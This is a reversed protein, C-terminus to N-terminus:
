KDQLNFAQYFKNAIYRQIDKGNHMLDRARHFEINPVQYEGAVESEFMTLKINHAHSLRQMVYRNKKVNTEANYESAAWQKYILEHRSDSAMYTIPLTQEYIEFRHAPPELVFIGKINLKDIYYDLLRVVTDFSSGGVGLNLVPYDLKISLQNPWTQDEPLGVGETHSCGLAIYCPADDFEKCRFGHSNYSYTFAEPNDWGNMKFFQVNKTDKMNQLWADKTDTGNWHRIQSAYHSNNHSPINLFLAM